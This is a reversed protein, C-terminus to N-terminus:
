RVDPATVSVGVDDAFGFALGDAHVQLVPAVVIAALALATVIRAPIPKQLVVAHLVCQSLLSVVQTVLPADATVALLVAARDERVHQAPQPAVFRDGGVRLVVHFPREAPRARFRGLSLIGDLMAIVLRCNPAAAAAAIAGTNPCVSAGIFARTLTSVSRAM